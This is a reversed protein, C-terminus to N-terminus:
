KIKRMLQMIKLLTQNVLEQQNELQYDKMKVQLEKIEQKIFAKQLVQICDTMVQDSYAIKEQEWIISTLYDNMSIDTMRDTIATLPLPIGEDYYLEQLLFLINQAQQHFLLLPQNLNEIYTWAEQYFILNFLIQKESHYAELSQIQLRTSPRLISQDTLPSTALSAEKDVRRNAVRLSMRGINESLMDKSLQFEKALESIRLEQEIPSQISAILTMLVEIYDALSQKDDLQFDGKLYEKEFDYYALAQDLLNQFSEPGFSKLWDDPDMQNPIVVAKVQLRDFKKAMQFARHTATQGAQDGDFVLYIQQCTKSLLDFHAETLSTGMSALVNKYGAQYLSIVDMYGECIIAAKQRRIEPRALDFNFLLQSKNFLKTEPSNLYKAEQSDKDQKLSRGSLAVTKGQKNRLPFILRSKFRDLLGQDTQYFIGSELLEQDEYGKNKLLDQSLDVKEPALGLQFNSITEPKLGRELLYQLAAEGNRTNMLYYHYFDVLDQHLQYIREEQPNSPKSTLYTDSIPLGVQDGVKKVAEPFTVGDIEQIFSFVNGGRGCSFCKYIQKDKSVSFSPNRDEHFPCSALYNNGRKQLDVYQSIIDVIDVQNRIQNILDQPIFAM